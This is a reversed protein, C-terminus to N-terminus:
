LSNRSTNWYMSKMNRQSKYCMTSFPVSIEAYNYILTSKSILSVANYMDYIIWLLWNSFTTLHTEGNAVGTPKRTKMSGNISSMRNSAVSWICWPALSGMVALPVRSRSSELNLPSIIERYEPLPSKCKKSECDPQPHLRLRLVQRALTHTGSSWMGTSMMSWKDCWILLKRFNGRWKVQEYNIECWILMKEPTFNM